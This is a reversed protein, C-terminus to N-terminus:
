KYSKLRVGHLCPQGLHDRESHGHNRWCCGVKDEMDSVEESRTIDSFRVTHCESITLNNQSLLRQPASNKPELISLTTCTDDDVHHSRLVFCAVARFRQFLITM